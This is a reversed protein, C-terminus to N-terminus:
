PPVIMPGKQTGQSPVRGAITPWGDVYVIPDILMMRAGPKTTDFSHYVMWDTGADDTIVANHGPGLWRASGVLMTNDPRGTAAGYDEFPGVASRSRASLVAYHPPGGPGGCCDDGSSFLYYWDGRKHLWAAEVLREYPKTSPVLLATAKSGPALRVRDPALEQVRVAEFGSGWYLLRRKTVPDDYAMPDIHVFSPGCVIPAGADVFPGDAGKATAAGICFSKTGANQEASYYLFYTGDHEVVHPAWFADKMSAWAPKTALADDIKTWHVLDASV